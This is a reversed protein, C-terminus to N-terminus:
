DDIEDFDLKKSKAKKMDEIESDEDSYDESDADEPTSSPAIGGKLLKFEMHTGDGYYSDTNKGTVKAQFTLTVIDGVDTEEIEPMNDSCLHLDPYRPKKEEEGCDCESMAHPHMDHKPMVGLDTMKM